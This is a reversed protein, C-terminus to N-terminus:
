FEQECNSSEEYIVMTEYQGNGEDTKGALGLKENLIEIDGILQEKKQHNSIFKRQM